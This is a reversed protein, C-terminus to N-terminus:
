GRGFKLDKPTYSDAWAKGDAESRGETFARTRGIDQLSRATDLRQADYNAQTTQEALKQNRKALSLQKSGMWLNSLLGLGSIVMNAKDTFTPKGWSAGIGGANPMGAIAPTMAASALNAGMNPDLVINGALSSGSLPVGGTGGFGRLSDALTPGGMFDEGMPLPRYSRLGFPTNNMESM